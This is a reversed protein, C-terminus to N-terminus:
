YLDICLWMFCLHIHFCKVALYILACDLWTLKNRKHLHEGFHVNFSGPIVLYAGNNIRLTGHGFTYQLLSLM